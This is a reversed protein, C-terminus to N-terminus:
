KTLNSLYTTLKVREEHAKEYATQKLKKLNYKTTDYRPPGGANEAYFNRLPYIYNPTYVKNIWDDCGWNFIYEPFLFGFIEYHKRSFFVQTLLEPHNNIPGTIGIDRHMKLTKVSQEVWGENKFIIDDGCQYFYDIKTNELKFAKELLINWMHTLHSPYVTKNFEIFHFSYDIYKNKIKEQIKMDKYFNDNYDYGIFFHYTNGDEPEFTSLTCKSLISEDFSNWKHGKTTTPILFAIKM